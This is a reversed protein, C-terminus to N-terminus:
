HQASFPSFRSRVLGQLKTGHRTESARLEPSGVKTKNVPADASTVHIPCQINFDQVQDHQCM